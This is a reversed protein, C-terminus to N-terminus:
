ILEWPEPFITSTAFHETFSPYVTLELYRIDCAIKEALEREKKSILVMRAGVGAANGVQTIKRLSVRPFMGINIVNKPDIYSGFAGAIIIRDIKEFGIGADELLVEIGTRIASKALQIEVIDRQNISVYKDDCRDNYRGYETKQRTEGIGNVGDKQIRENNRKQMYFEPTLIYQYNGHRDRYLCKKEPKFKGWRDIIGAKLLEAISDLIGSGCIGVPERDDITQIVPVCTEPDIVVREIAGPAARMGYKIHAGEFAPGSATSVSVIGKRSKLAIETNTGIDIGMCNGEQEYLRTALIMALHDSGVFGAIPPLMYVYGGPSIAVGIERAKLHIAESTLPLFPSLALQKVPLGLFLHHMATNGVVTMELIENSSLRNKKCLGDVAENISQVVLSQARKLNDEDQMAYGLRSMVDEGFRIQPNTVGIRDVTKGKLLDVLFIAIKTTGLDVAIGYSSKTRNGGEIFIIENGSSNERLTATIKWKNDRIVTPMQTLVKFDITRADVSYEKRLCENIRTFDSKTDKLTAEELGLFYKKCVPSIEIDLEEGEVQLKQEESLSSSPIYISLDKHFTQQCALRVGRKIEDSTLIKKEQESPPFEGDDLIIIRCKGCIGKGGCVSKIGIGSNVIADLGNVPQKLFIRRGIPEIEVKIKKEPMKIKAKGNKM